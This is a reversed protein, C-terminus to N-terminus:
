EDDDVTTKITMTLIMTMTMAKADACVETLDVVM